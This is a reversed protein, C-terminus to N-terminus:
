KAGEKNCHIQVANDNLHIRRLSDDNLAVVAPKHLCDLIDEFVAHFACAIVSFNIDLTLVIGNKRFDCNM